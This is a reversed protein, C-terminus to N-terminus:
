REGFLRSFIERFDVREDLRKGTYYGAVACLAVFFARLLGYKIALLGFLLGTLIGVAKGLHKELIEQIIGM